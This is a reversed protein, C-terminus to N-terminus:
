SRLGYVRRQGYRSSQLYIYQIFCGDGLSLYPSHEETLDRADFSDKTDDGSLWRSIPGSPLGKMCKNRESLASEETPPSLMEDQIVALDLLTMWLNLLASLDMSKLEEELQRGLGHFYCDCNQLVRYYRGKHLLAFWGRTGM